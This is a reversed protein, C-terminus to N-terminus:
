FAQILRIATDLWGMHEKAKNDFDTLAAQNYIRGSKIV